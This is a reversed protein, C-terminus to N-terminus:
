EKRETLFSGVDGHVIVSGVRFDHKLDQPDTGLIHAKQEGTMTAAQRPVFYNDPAVHVTWMDSGSLWAELLKYQLSQWSGTARSM